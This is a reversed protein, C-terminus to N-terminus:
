PCLPIDGCVIRPQCGVPRPRPVQRAVGASESSPGSQATGAFM